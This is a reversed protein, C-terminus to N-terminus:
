VVLLFQWREYTYSFYYVKVLKLFALQVLSLSSFSLVEHLLGQACRALRGRRRGGRARAGARAAAAAAPGAAARRADHQEAAVSVLTTLLATSAGRSRRMRAVAYEVESVVTFNDDYMLVIDAARWDDYSMRASRSVSAPQDGSAM